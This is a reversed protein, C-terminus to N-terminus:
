PGDRLALLDIPDDDDGDCADTSYQSGPADVAAEGDDRPVDGMGPWGNAAYVARVAAVAPANEAAYRRHLVGPANDALFSALAYIGGLGTLVLTVRARRGLNAWKDRM